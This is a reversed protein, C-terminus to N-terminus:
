SARDTKEVNGTSFKTYFMFVIRALGCGPTGSMLNVLFNGFQHKILYFL